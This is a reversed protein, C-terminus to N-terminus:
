LDLMDRFIEARKLRQIINTEGHLFALHQHNDPWRAGAFGGQQATDVVQLPGVAALDDDIADRDAM